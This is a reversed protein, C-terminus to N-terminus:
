TYKICDRLPNRVKYLYTSLMGISELSLLSSRNLESQDWRKNLLLDLCHTKHTSLKSGVPNVSVIRQFERLLTCHFTVTSRLMGFCLGDFRIDNSVIAEDSLNNLAHRVYLQQHFRFGSACQLLTSLNISEKVLHDTSIILILIPGVVNFQCLLINLNCPILQKCKICSWTAVDLVWHMFPNCHSHSAECKANSTEYCSHNFLTSPVHRSM